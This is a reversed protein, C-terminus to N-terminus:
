TKISEAIYEGVIVYLQKQWEDFQAPEGKVTDGQLRDLFTVCVIACKLGAKYCMASLCTSEMEVNKIGWEDHAKQLFIAKDENTYDCFAGDLRCQGEFFDDTSMTNGLIAPIDSGKSVKLLSERMEPCTKCPSRQSRGISVHLFDPSLTADYPQDTIVVTGPLVGLGGSTGIRIFKVDNQCGAYHLLKFVENLVVSLSATGIGHSVLLVDGVKYMSYRGACKSINRLTKGGSEDVAKEFHSNQPQRLKEFLYDAFDKMRSQKGGLCVFKIDGFRQELDDSTLIGLHYLHDNKGLHPNKLTFQPM